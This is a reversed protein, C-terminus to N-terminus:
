PPRFGQAVWSSRRCSRPMTAKTPPELGKEPKGPASRMGVMLAALRQGFRKPAPQRLRQGVLMETHFYLAFSLLAQLPVAPMDALESALCLITGDSSIQIDQHHIVKIVPVNLGHSLAAEECALRLKDFILASASVRFL